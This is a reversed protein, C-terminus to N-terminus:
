KKNEILKFGKNILIISLFSIPLIIILWGSIGCVLEFVLQRITDIFSLDFANKIEQVTLLTHKTNFITEGIHIFPVFLLFQLPTALYSIVIMVPLNLRLKIAAFTLLLTIVGFIPFVTIFLSVVVAKAIERISLGQQFPKKIEQLITLFNIQMSLFIHKLFISPQFNLGSM